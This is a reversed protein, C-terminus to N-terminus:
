SGAQEWAYELAARLRRRGDMRRECLERLEPWSPFWKAQAGGGIWYGCAWAVVDLPYNSLDDVMVEAAFSDEGQGAQASKTRAKLRAVLPVVDARPARSCVRDLHVLDQELQERTMGTPARFPAIRVYEFQGDAGM